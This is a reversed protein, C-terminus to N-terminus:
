NQPDNQRLYTEYDRICQMQRTNLNVIHRREKLIKVINDSTLHNGGVIKSDKYLLYCATMIASRGKGAKCHIYVKHCSDHDLIQEILTVTDIIQELSLPAMDPAEVQYHTVNLNNWDLPSVPTALLNPTTNEHCEMVSVVHTIGIEQSLKLHHNWDKIPIAGLYLRLNIMNWWPYKKSDYLHKLMELGLTINLYGRKWAKQM